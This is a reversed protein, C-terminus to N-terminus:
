RVLPKVGNMARYARIVQSDDAAGHGLGSAAVMLLLLEADHAAESPSSAAVGGQAVLAEVAAARLDFEHVTHGARLLNGAMPAGMAGLGIFGIRV